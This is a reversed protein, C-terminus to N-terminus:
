IRTAPDIWTILIRRGGTKKAGGNAFPQRPMLRPALMILMILIPRTRTESPIPQTIASQGFDCAMVPAGVRCRASSFISYSQSHSEEGTRRKIEDALTEAVSAKKRHGYAFEGHGPLQKTV